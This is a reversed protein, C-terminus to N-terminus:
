LSPPHDCRAWGIVRSAHPALLRADPAELARTDSALALRYGNAGDAQACGAPLAVHTPADADVEGRNVLVVDYLSASEARRWDVSATATLPQGQVVARWTALRWARSDDATPLRFWAWGTFHTPPRAQVRAVFGAVALPSVSLERREAADHLTRTESEIDSLKGDADFGVRTGYTPLAVRFPRSMRRAYDSTWRLAIAPDFLGERPQRVAHVQLTSEDAQALVQELAPSALWAPLATISLPTDAGLARHLDALWAAYAPLRATACDHDIEIGAAALGRAQWRARLAVIERVLAAGDLGALQGDIRVVLVVPRHTAALADADIAVSTLTGQPTAEAALVRWAHALDAAQTLADHLAPHWARQWVYVDHTVPAPARGCACLMAVALAMAFRQLILTTSSAPTM